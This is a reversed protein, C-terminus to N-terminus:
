TLTHCELACEQTENSSMKQGRPALLSGTVKHTHTLIVYGAAEFMPVSLLNIIGKKNYWVEFEGFWGKTRTSVTCHDM